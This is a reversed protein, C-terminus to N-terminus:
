TRERGPQRVTTRCSSASKTSSTRVRSHRLRLVFSTIQQPGITAGTRTALYSDLPERHHNRRPILLLQDGRAESRHKRREVTGGRSVIAYGADDDHHSM